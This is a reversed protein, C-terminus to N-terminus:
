AVLSSTGWEDVPQGFSRLRAVEFGYRDALSRLLQLTEPTLDTGISTNHLHGALTLM